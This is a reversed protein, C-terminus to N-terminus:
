ANASLAESKQRAVDLLRRSIDVGVVQQAGQALLSLADRGHSCQLHIARSCWTSLDGLMRRESEFLSTGGSRLFEIDDSIGAEGYWAATENWWAANGNHIESINM